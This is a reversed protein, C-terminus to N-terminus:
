RKGSKSAPKDSGSKASPSVATGNSGPAHKGNSSTGKSGATVTGTAGPGRVPAQESWDIVSALLAKQTGKTRYDSGSAPTAHQARGVYPLDFGLTQRICDALFLYAGQNRPEEQTWVVQASSPYASLVEKLRASDFPYIQEIRVLATDDRQSEERKLALEHYIKGACLVVRKVGKRDSTKAEAYRPDDIVTQFRGTILEELTSTQLRLQSKPTMVILPKRYAAKMQRRLM